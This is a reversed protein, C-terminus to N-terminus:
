SSVVPFSVVSVKTREMRLHTEIAGSSRGIARRAESGERVRLGRGAGTMVEEVSFPTVENLHWTSESSSPTVKPQSYSGGNSCISFTRSMFEKGWSRVQLAELLTESSVAVTGRTGGPPSPGCWRLRHIPIEAATM